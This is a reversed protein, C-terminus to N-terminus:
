GLAAALDALFRIQGAVGPYGLRDLVVVQDAQVAPLSQWLPNDTIETVADDEGEVASSQLLVITPADLLELQELSLFARGNSDADAATAEPDLTCGVEVVGRPLPGVPEVWAAVSPGPFVSGLSVVCDDGVAAAAAARAQELEDLAVAAEAERDLLEGLTTIQDDTSLGDPVVILNGLGEAIDAGIQDVVFELTVVTDPQLAAVQEVGLGVMPLVEIDETAAPDIGGFGADPVTASSAIPVIGLTLLDALLFEEGIAVVRGHDTGATAETDETDETGAGAEDAAANDAGSDPDDASADDTPADSTPDDTGQDDATDTPAATDSGADSGGCAGALLALAIIAPALRGVHSTAATRGTAAARIRASPRM